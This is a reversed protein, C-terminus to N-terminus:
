KKIKISKQAKKKYKNKFNNQRLHLVRIDLPTNPDKMIEEKNRVILNKFTQRQDPDGEMGAEIDCLLSNLSSLKRYPWRTIKFTRCLDKMATSGFNLKEGAKSM